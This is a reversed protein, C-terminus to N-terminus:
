GGNLFLYRQSSFQREADFNNCLVWQGGQLKNAAPIIVAVLFILGFCM